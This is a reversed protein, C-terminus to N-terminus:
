PTGFKISEVIALTNSLASSDADNSILAFAVVNTGVLRVGRTLYHFPKTNDSKERRGTFRAYVGDQRAGFRHSDVKGEVSTKATSSCIFELFHELGRDVLTNTKTLVADNIRL